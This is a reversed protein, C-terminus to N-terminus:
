ARDQEAGEASAQEALHDIFDNIEKGSRLTVYDGRGVDDFGEKAAARLWDLKARDEQEQRELLQLSERVVESPSVGQANAKAQLAAWLDDPLEITLNM